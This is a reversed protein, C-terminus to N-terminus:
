EEPQDDGEDNGVKPLDSRSTVLPEAPDTSFQEGSSAFKSFRKGAPTLPKIETDDAEASSAADVLVDDSVGEPLVGPTAMFLDGHETEEPGAALVEGSGAQGGFASFFQPAGPAPTVPTGTRASLFDEIDHM